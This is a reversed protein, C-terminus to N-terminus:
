QLFFGRNITTIQHEFIDRRLAKNRNWMDRLEALKCANYLQDRIETLEEQKHTGASDKRMMFFKSLFDNGIIRTTLSLLNLDGWIFEINDCFIRIIKVLV